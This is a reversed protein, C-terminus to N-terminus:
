TLGGEKKFGALDAAAVKVPVPAPNAGGKGDRDPDVGRSGGSASAQASVKEEGGRGFGFTGTGFGRKKPADKKSEEAKSDSKAEDSGAPAGGELGLAGDASLAISTQPVSTYTITEKYRAEVTATGAPKMASAQKTLRAIRAETEPHSPFLGRKETTGTNREKLRTLFTALGSPAYGVQNALSSGKADSENEQAPSFAQNVIKSVTAGVVREFLAANGSLSEQAGLKIGSDKQIERITHKETIHTLEHGLVGALEAENQILALAGRTIHVYGGPAAFANVSDTDLVIFSWGLSPRSSAQALVQGVLSVYRHVAPDQVVGFRQRLNASVASGLKQEEEDSMHLEEVQQARRAIEGIRGLQGVGDDAAASGALTLTVLLGASLIQTTPKMEQVM